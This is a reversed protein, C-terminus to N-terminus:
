KGVAMNQEIASIEKQIQFQIHSLTESFQELKSLMEVMPTTTEKPDRTDLESEKRTTKAPIAGQCIQEYLRSTKESPSVNLEDRLASLCREYQRLSRTRDGSMFYLRMMQRHAREYARDHRLIESCYTFGAEYDRHLECYQVMKDLLTIYMIQYREREYICWDQYWGELLDGKYLAAAQQANNFDDASL